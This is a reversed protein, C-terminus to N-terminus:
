AHLRRRPRFRGGFNLTLNALIRWEDQLYLGYLWGTRAASSGIPLPQDSTQTGFADVPLVFNTAQQVAREGQILFGARLTHAPAIRWSGDTQVGSAIDRRYASQALGNFLLDGVYDPTFSVSSYRNFGSVQLDADEFQKQFSLIGFHTTERQSENLSASTFDAQGNVTLGLGPALGPTNPIQFASRSTGAILSLRSSENLIGSLYLFGRGQDTNDHRPDSATPSEIGVSNHLFEGSAFYDLRGVTGGYEISPQLTDYSGGYMSIRGGPNLTGTKTQIDIVGATRFGYQAPLAGTILSASNALRTELVQGFVAIGEPLQVGNIRYQLNAHDGRVHLQGFSDQAVSPAQLIIQNLRSNDGQPTDEIAGRSFSYVSAGLSPQIQAAPM